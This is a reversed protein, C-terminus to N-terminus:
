SSNRNETQQENEEGKVQKITMLGLKVLDRGSLKIAEVKYVGKFEKWTMTHRIVHHERCLSIFTSQTHDYENRNNGAGVRNDEHHIDSHKGCIACKRNVCCQYLYYNENRPLLEYGKTFPINNVFMFEIVLELMDNMDSVTNRSAEKVSISKSTTAKYYEKFFEHLLTTDNGTHNFIDNLLAFYLARQQSTFRRPDTVVLHGNVSSLDDNYMTKIREINLDDQLKVTLEKKNSDYRTIIFSHEM